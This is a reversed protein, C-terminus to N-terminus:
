KLNVQMYTSLCESTDLEKHGWPGYGVLSRQGHNKLCPYQLPNEEGPSRELGPILRVDGTDGANCTPEKGVSSNPLGSEGSASLYSRHGPGDGFM